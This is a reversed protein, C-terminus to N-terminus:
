LRSVSPQPKLRKPLVKEHPSSLGPVRAVLPSVRLGNVPSVFGPFCCTVQGFHPDLKSTSSGGPSLGVTFVMHMSHPSINGKWRLTGSGPTGASFGRMGAGVSCFTEQGFHPDLKSTSSGGPSLGVTFVMHM